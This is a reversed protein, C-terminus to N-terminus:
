REYYCTSLRPRCASRWTRLFSRQQKTTIRTPARRARSVPANVAVKGLGRKKEEDDGYDNKVKKRKRKPQTTAFTNSSSVQVNLAVIPVGATCAVYLELLCCPRALVGTSQLLVLCASNRVKV